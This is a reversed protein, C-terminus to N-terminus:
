LSGVAAKKNRAPPFGTSPLTSGTGRDPIREWRMSLYQKWADMKLKFHIGALDFNSSDTQLRNRHIVFHDSREM